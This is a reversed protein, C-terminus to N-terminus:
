KDQFFFSCAFFFFYLFLFFFWGFLCEHEFFARDACVFALDSVFLLSRAHRRCLHKHIFQIFSHIFFFSLYVFPLLCIFFLIHYNLKEFLLTAYVFSSLHCVFSHRFFLLLMKVCLFHCHVFEIIIQHKKKNQKINFLINMKNINKFSNLCPKASYDSSLVCLSISCMCIYFTFNIIVFVTPNSFLLCAHIFLFFSLSFFVFFLTCDVQHHRFIIM